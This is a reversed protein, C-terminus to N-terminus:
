DVGRMWREITDQPRDPTWLGWLNKRPAPPPTYLEWDTKPKKTVYKLVYWLPTQHNTRLILAKGFRRWMSEKWVRWSLSFTRSSLPSRTSLLAHVHHSAWDKHPEVVWLCEKLPLHSNFDALYSCWKAAAGQESTQVRFTQTWFLDWQRLSFFRVLENRVWPGWMREIAQDNWEEQIAEAWGM